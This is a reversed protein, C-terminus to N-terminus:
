LRAQRYQSLLRNSLSQSLALVIAQGALSQFFAQRPLPRWECLDPRNCPYMRCSSSSTESVDLSACYHGQPGRFTLRLRARRAVEYIAPVQSVTTQRDFDLGSRRRLARCWRRLDLCIVHRHRRCWGLRPKRPLSRGCSLASVYGAPLRYACLRRIM